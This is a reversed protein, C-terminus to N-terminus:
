SESQSNEAAHQGAQGGPTHSVTIIALVVKYKSVAM